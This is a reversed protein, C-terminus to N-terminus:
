RTTSRTSRPSRATTCTAATSGRSARRTTSAATRRCRRRGRRREAHLLRRHRRRLRHEQGPQVGAAPARRRRALDPLHAEQRRRAARAGRPQLDARRAEPQLRAAQRDESRHGQDLESRQRVERGQHVPRQHSRAHLLLRQARLPRRGQASPRRDDHRLAHARRGRRLGVLREAHVPLALGAQRHRRELAVVSNTYLNDGPRFQPDYIPIRTAPASSTSTRAGSRLLRDALHRRRRDELRQSRGELNRQGSRGAEARHVLAVARQRDQVDLAAVWGRTGGDGAGNQIICRATPSSRRPSSGSRAASSTRPRSRRTGSSRATTATSPSSAATPCTPSCWTKGSRSAARARRRQGRAARRPRRGLRVRGPEPQARRDQLRTGWGDSTYMFGNDILPNVENEPGNQGVDQMGGLALAWVM